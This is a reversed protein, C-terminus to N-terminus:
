CGCAALHRATGRSTATGSCSSTWMRSGNRAAGDVLHHLAMTGALGRLLVRLWAAASEGSVARALRRLTRRDLKDLVAKVLAELGQGGRTNWANFWVVDVDDAAAELHARMQALRSSKGMGWDAFVALTFPAAFRSARVLGGLAAAEASRDLLDQQGQESVPRDSLLVLRADPSPAAIRADTL